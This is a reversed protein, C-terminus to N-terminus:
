DHRPEQATLREMAAATVREGRQITNTVPRYVTDGVSIPRGTLHCATRKRAKCRTWMGVFMASTGMVKVLGPAVLVVM